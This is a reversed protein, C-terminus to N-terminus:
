HVKLGSKGSGIVNVNTLSFFNMFLIIVVQEKLPFSLNKPSGAKEGAGWKKTLKLAINWVKINNYIANRGSIKWKILYLNSAQNLDPLM